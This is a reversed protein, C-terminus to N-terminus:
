LVEKIFIEYIFWGQEKDNYLYKKNKDVYFNEGHHKEQIVKRTSGCPTCVDQTSLTITAGKSDLIISNNSNYVEIDRDCVLNNWHKTKIKM